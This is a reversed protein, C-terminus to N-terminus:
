AELPKAPAHDDNEADATYIGILAVITFFINFAIHVPYSKAQKQWAVPILRM